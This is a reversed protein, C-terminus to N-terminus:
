GRAHLAATETCISLWQEFPARSMISREVYGAYLRDGVRKAGGRREGPPATTVCLLGAPGIRRLSALLRQRAAEDFSAQYSKFVFIRSADAIDKLLKRRLIRLTARGTALVDAAGAMDQQERCNTHM